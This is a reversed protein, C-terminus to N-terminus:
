GLTVNHEDTECGNLKQCKQLLGPRATEHIAWDIGGGSILTKNVSNM